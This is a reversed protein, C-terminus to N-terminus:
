SIATAQREGGRQERSLRVLRGLELGDDITHTDPTPPATRTSARVMKTAVPGIVGLTDSLPQSLTADTRHDRGFARASPALSPTWDGVIYNAIAPATDDFTADAPEFLAARDGGSIFLEGQM